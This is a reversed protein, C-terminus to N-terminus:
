NRTASPLLWACLFFMSFAPLWPSVPVEAAVGGGLIRLLYLATLLLVDVVPVRKGYVSYYTAAVAYILMIELFRISGYIAAIAFGALFLLPLLSLGALVPVDGSAFPRSKKEPHLRDAEVDFLDNLIYVGSACLSFSAFAALVNWLKPLAKHIRGRHINSEFRDVVFWPRPVKTRHTLVSLHVSM